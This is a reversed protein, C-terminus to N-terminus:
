FNALGLGPFRSDLTRVVYGRSDSAEGYSDQLRPLIEQYLTTEDIRHAVGALAGWYPDSADLRRAFRDNMRASLDPDGVHDALLDGLVQSVYFNDSRSDLRDVLDLGARLGREGGLALEVWGFEKWDRDAQTAMLDLELAQERSLGCLSLRSVSEDDVIERLLELRDRGHLEVYSGGLAAQIESECAKSLEVGPTDLLERLREAGSRWDRHM